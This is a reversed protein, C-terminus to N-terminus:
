DSYYQRTLVKQFGRQVIKEALEQFSVKMAKRAQAETIDVRYLMSQFSSKQNKYINELTDCLQKSLESFLESKHGSFILEPLSSGFDKKIQEITRRIIEEDQKYKDPLEIM